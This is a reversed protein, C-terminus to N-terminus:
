QLSLEFAHQTIIIVKFSNINSYYSCTFTEYQSNYLIVVFHNSQIENADFIFKATWLHEQHQHLKLKLGLYLQIKQTLSRFEENNEVFTVRCTNKLALFFFFLLHILIPVFILKEMTRCKGEKLDFNTNSQQYEEKELDNMQMRIEANDKQMQKIDTTVQLCAEMKESILTNLNDFTKKFDAFNAFHKSNRIESSFTNAVNCDLGVFGFGVQPPTQLLELSIKNADSTMRTSEM